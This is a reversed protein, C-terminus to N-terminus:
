RLIYAHTYTHMHSHRVIDEADDETCREIVIEDEALRKSADVPLTQKIGNPPTPVRILGSM